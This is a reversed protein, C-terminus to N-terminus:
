CRDPRLYKVDIGRGPRSYVATICLCTGANASADANIEAGANAVGDACLLSSSPALTPVFDVFRLGGKYAVVDACFLASTM